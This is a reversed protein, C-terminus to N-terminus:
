EYGLKSLVIRGGVRLVDQDDVFPSLKRLHKPPPKDKRILVIERNFAQSQAFKILILLAQQM